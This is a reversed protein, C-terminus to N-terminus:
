RNFTKDVSKYFLKCSDKAVDEFDIYLKNMFFYRVLYYGEDANFGFIDMIRDIIEAQIEITDKSVWASRDKSNILSSIELQLKNGWHAFTRFNSKKQFITLAEECIFMDIRNRMKDDMQEFMTDINSM